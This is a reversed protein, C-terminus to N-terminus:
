LDRGPQDLRIAALAEHLRADRQTIQGLLRIEGTGYRQAIISAGSQPGAVIGMANGVQQVRKAQGTVLMRVMNRTPLCAAGGKHANERRLRVDQKEVLWRVM